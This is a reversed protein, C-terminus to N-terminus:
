GPPWALSRKGMLHIHMHFVTQGGDAGTNLITRYGDDLGQLKALKSVVLMLHGLLQQHSEEVEALSVIEEKPIILLHVPAQPSIDPFALCLDDEYVIEAPIEKDIIKKFITKEAMATPREFAPLAPQM